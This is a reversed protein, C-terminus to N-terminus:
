GPCNVPCKAQAVVVLAGRRTCPKATRYWHRRTIKFFALFFFEHTKTGLKETDAQKRAAGSAIVVARGGDDDAAWPVAMGAPKGIGVRFLTAVGFRGVAEPRAGTPGDARAATVARLRGAGWLALWLGTCFPISGAWRGILVGM